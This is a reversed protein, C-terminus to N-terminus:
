IKNFRLNPHKLIHIYLATQVVPEESPVLETGLYAKAKRRPYGAIVSDETNHSTGFLQEMSVMVMENIIKCAEAM